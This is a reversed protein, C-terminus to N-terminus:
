GKKRQQEEAKVIAKKLAEAEESQPPAIKLLQRWYNEAQGYDERTYADMALMALADPQEPNKSLLNQFLERIYPTFQQQNVQLLSYAYNLTALEDVANLQHSTAFADRALQWEGQSAYLRGLLYWGHASEPRKNLRAKLKRALEAPSKVGALLAKAERQSAESRAFQQWAPWAGWYQYAMVIVILLLTVCALQGRKSLTKRLPYVVLLLALSALLFFCGLLWWENM